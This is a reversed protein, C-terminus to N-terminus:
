LEMGGNIKTDSADHGVITLTKDITITENYTGDAVQITDGSSAANIAAQITTFDAGGDDDVTWTTAASADEAFQIMPMCLGSVILIILSLKTM